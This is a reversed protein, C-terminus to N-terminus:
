EYSELRKLKELYTEAIKKATDPDLHVHLINTTGQADLEGRLRATLEVLRCFERVCALAFRYEGRSIADEKIVTVERSLDELEGIQSATDVIPRGSRNASQVLRLRSSLAELRRVRKELNIDV